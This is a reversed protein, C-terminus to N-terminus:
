ACVTQKLTNRTPAIDLGLYFISRSSSYNAPWRDSLLSSQPVPLPSLGISWISLARIPPRRPQKDRGVCERHPGSTSEARLVRSRRLSLSDYEALDNKRARAKARPLRVSRNRM